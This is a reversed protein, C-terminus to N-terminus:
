WTRSDRWSRPQSPSRITPSYKTITVRVSLAVGLYFNDDPPEEYASAQIGYALFCLIAGFWRLMTFGSFLCQCSM